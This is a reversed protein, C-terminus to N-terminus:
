KLGVPQLMLKGVILNSYYQKSVEKKPRPL